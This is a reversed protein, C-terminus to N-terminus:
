SSLSMLKEASRINLDENACMAGYMATWKACWRRLYLIMKTKEPYVNSTSPPQVLSCYKPVGLRCYSMFSKLWVRMVSETTRRVVSVITRDCTGGNIKKQLLQIYLPKCPRTSIRFKLSHTICLGIFYWVIGRESLFARNILQTIM